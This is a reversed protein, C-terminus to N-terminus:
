DSSAKDAAQATDAQAQNDSGAATMTTPAPPVFQVPKSGNSDSVREKDFWADEAATRPSAPKQARPVVNYQPYYGDTIQRQQEYYDPDAQATIAAAAATFAAGMLIKRTISRM